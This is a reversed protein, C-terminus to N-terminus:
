VYSVEQDKLVERLAILARRQLGKVADESKNILGAVEAIPMDAIFRLIIVERQDETLKKLARQLENIRMNRDAAEDPTPEQTKLGDELPVIKESNVKRYHDISINRAIQYLWAQFSSTTPTYKNLGRLMRIFVESTLDEATHKDGFKYFLYRYISIQFRQYILEITAADGEQARQIVEMDIDIM